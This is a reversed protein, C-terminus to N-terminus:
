HVLVPWPWAPTPPAASAAPTRRETTTAPANKGKNDNVFSFSGGIRARGGAPPDFRLSRLVSTICQVMAPTLSGSKGWCAGPVAGDAGVALTFALRGEIDPDFNLGQQYCGRIKSRAAAFVSDAGRLRGAGCSRVLPSSDDKPGKAPTPTPEDPSPADGDCEDYRPAPSPPPPPEEAPIGVALEKPVLWTAFTRGKAETPVKADFADLLCAALKPDMAKHAGCAHRPAGDEGVSVEVQLDGELSWGDRKARAICAKAAEYLWAHAGLDRSGQFTLATQGEVFGGCARCAVASHGFPDPRDSRPTKKPTSASTAPPTGETCAAGVCLAAAGVLSRGVGKAFRM